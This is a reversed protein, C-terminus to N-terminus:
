LRWPGKGVGWSTIQSQGLEKLTEEWKSELHRNPISASRMILSTACIINFYATM